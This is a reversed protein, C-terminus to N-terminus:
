NLIYYKEIIIEKYGIEDTYDGGVTTHPFTKIFGTDVNPM